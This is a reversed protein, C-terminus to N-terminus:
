SPRRVMEWNPLGGTLQSKGVLEFGLRTYIAVNPETMTELYVPVRDRDAATFVPGFVARSLGRGQMEPRVGLMPVYCHPGPVHRHRAADFEHELRTLLRGGRWGLEWLLLLGGARFQSWTGPWETGAPWTCIIASRDATGYAGNARVATCFLFRGLAAVARPRRAEDPCLAAFLPYDAFAAALTAVAAPEDRLTLLE